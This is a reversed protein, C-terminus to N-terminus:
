KSSYSRPLRSSLQCFLEYPITKTEKAIQDFKLPDEDWIFVTEGASIDVSPGFLVQAMDMNVRGRYAGIEGKHYLHAGQYRTSLGDGYGLAIIAVKGQEPMTTAGYGVPQGRDVSIVKLVETELRSIIKGKWTGQPKLPPILSSPGYLMLGPRIHTEELGVGQEIAGSNSMSTREVSFGEALLYDKIKHFREQQLLNMKNKTMSQSACGFHTMLHFIDNRGSKKLLSSVTEVEDWHFGLRNMGTNFKLSLPLNKFSDKNLAFDLDELSSLVPIIKRGAYLEHYQPDKLQLDSFVYIYFDSRIINERLSMAEALSAVGFERVGLEYYAYDTVPILGHGYAYAKVMFLIHSQPAMEKLLSFNEALINLDVHLRSSFRM